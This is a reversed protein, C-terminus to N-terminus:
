HMGHLIRREEDTIHLTIALEGLLYYAIHLPVTSHQTLNLLLKISFNGQIGINIDLALAKLCINNSTLKIQLFQLLLFFVFAHM